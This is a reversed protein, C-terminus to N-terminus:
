SVVLCSANKEKQLSLKPEHCYRTGTMNLYTARYLHAMVERNVAVGDSHAVFEALCEFAKYPFLSNVSKLTGTTAM